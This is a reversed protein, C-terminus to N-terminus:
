LPKVACAQRFRRENFAPNDMQSVNIVGQELADAQARLEQAYNVLHAANPKAGEREADVARLRLARVQKAFAEFYKKSIM